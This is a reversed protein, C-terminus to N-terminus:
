EFLSPVWRYLLRAFIRFAMNDNQGVGLEKFQRDLEMIAESKKLNNIEQNIKDIRAQSEAGQKKQNALSTIAQEINNERLAKKVDFDFQKIEYDLKHSLYSSKVDEKYEPEAESMANAIMSTIRNKEVQGAATADKLNREAELNKIQESKVELDKNMNSIQNKAILAQIIKSGMGSFPNQLNSSQLNSSRVSPSTTMQGYILNPNLGAQKYRTMQAIPSNYENVRNWDALADARQKAYDKLNWHRQLLQTGINAVSEAAQIAMFPDM